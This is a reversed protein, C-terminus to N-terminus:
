IVAHKEIMIQDITQKTTEDAKARLTKVGAMTNILKKRNLLAYGLMAITGIAGGAAAPDNWNTKAVGEATTVGQRMLQTDYIQQKVEAIDEARASTTVLENYQAVLASERKDLDAKMGKITESASFGGALGAGGAVLESGCGALIASLLLILGATSSVILGYGIIRMRRM